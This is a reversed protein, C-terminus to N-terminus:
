ERHDVIEVPYADGEKWSFCIWWQDNIRTSYQGQPDGQLVELYHSPPLRLGGFPFHRSDPWLAEQRQAPYRAAIEQVTGWCSAKEDEQRLLDQDHLCPLPIRFSRLGHHDTWRTDTAAFTKPSQGLGLSAQVSDLFQVEPADPTTFFSADSLTDSMTDSAQDSVKGAGDSLSGSM